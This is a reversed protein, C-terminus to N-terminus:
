YYIYEVAFIYLLWHGADVDKVCDVTCFRLLFCDNELMRFSSMGGIVVSNYAAIYGDLRNVIVVFTYVSSVLILFM